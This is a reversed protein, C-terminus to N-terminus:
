NIDLLVPMESLSFRNSSFFPSLRRRWERRFGRYSPPPPPPKPSLPPPFFSPLFPSPDPKARKGRSGSVLSAAGGNLCLRSSAAAEVSLPPRFFLSLFPFSSLPVAQFRLQLTLSRTGGRGRDGDTPREREAAFRFVM